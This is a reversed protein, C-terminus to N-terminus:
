GHAATRTWFTTLKEEEWGLTRWWRGERVEMQGLNQEPQHSGHRVRDQGSVEAVARTESILRSGPCQQPQDEADGKQFCVTQIFRERNSSKRQPLTNKTSFETPVWTDAKTSFRWIRDVHRILIRIMCLYTILKSKWNLLKPNTFSQYCTHLLSHAMSDNM